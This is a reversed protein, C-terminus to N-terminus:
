RSQPAGPQDAHGYYASELYLGSSTAYPLYYVEVYGVSKDPLDAIASVSVRETRFEANAGSGSYLRNQIYGHVQVAPPGDAAFAVSCLLGLATVALTLVATKGFNKM